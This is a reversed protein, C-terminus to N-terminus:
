KLEAAFTQLAQIYKKGALLVIDNHGAGLVPMFTKPEHALEYLRRGHWFPVVQDGSGHVILVPVHVNRIERANNFKDWPLIQIRTLVRFASLFPAEAILGAVPRTAALHIAAASGLSRGMAIIQNPPLHLEQTVYDYTANADSYVGDESPKGSSTGYGRYDYAMISFGADYFPQLFFMVQGIDEANGHSFLLTYRTQPNPLYFAAITTGGSKLHVVRGAPNSRALMASLAADTYSPPQPQFIISDSKVALVVLSIYLAGFVVPVFGLLWRM